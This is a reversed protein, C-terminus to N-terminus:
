DLRYGQMKISAERWADPDPFLSLYARPDFHTGVSLELRTGGQVPEFRGTLLVGKRRAKEPPEL